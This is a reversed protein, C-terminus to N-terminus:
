GASPVGADAGPVSNVVSAVLFKRGLFIFDALYGPAHPGPFFKDFCGKEVPM